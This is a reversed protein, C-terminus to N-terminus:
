EEIGSILYMSAVIILPCDSVRQRFNPLMENIKPVCVISAYNFSEFCSKVRKRRLIIKSYKYCKRSVNNIHMSGVRIIFM